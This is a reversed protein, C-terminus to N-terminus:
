FKLKKYKHKIFSKIVTLLIIYLKNYIIIHIGNQGSYNVKLQIRDRSVIAFVPILHANTLMNNTDLLLMIKRIRFTRWVKWFIKVGLFGKQMYFKNRKRKKEKQKKKRSKEQRLPYVSFQVFLIKIKFFFLEDLNIFFSIRFLGRFQFYYENEFTNIVFEMRAFLIWLILLFLFLFIFLLLM